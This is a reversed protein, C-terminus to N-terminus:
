NASDAFCPFTLILNSNGSQCFGFSLSLREDFQQRKNCMLIYILFNLFEVALFNLIKRNYNCLVHM